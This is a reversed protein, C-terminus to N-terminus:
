HEKNINPLIIKKNKNKYDKEKLKQVIKNNSEFNYYNRATLDVMSISSLLKSPTKNLLKNNEFYKKYNNNDIKNKKLQLKAMSNNRKTTQPYLSKIVEFKKKTLKIMTKKFNPVILGNLGQKESYKKMNLRQKLNFIEYKKDNETKDFQSQAFLNLNTSRFLLESCNRNILNRKCRFQNTTGKMNAKIDFHKIIKNKVNNLTIFNLKAMANKTLQEILHKKEEFISQQLFFQNKKDIPLLHIFELFPFKLITANKSFCKVTCFRRKIDLVELYGFIQPAVLKQINARYLNKKATEESKELQEVLKMKKSQEEKLNNNNEEESKEKHSIIIKDYNSKKLICPSKNEKYIRNIKKQIKEEKWLMPNDMDNILSYTNDYIYDIFQEYWGFNIETYVELIGEKIFFIHNPIDNQKFIYDGKNYYETILGNVLKFCKSNSWHKFIPFDNRFDALKSNIRQNEVDKIKSYDNKEISILDCKEATIISCNWPENKILAV